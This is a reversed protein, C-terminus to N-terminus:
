PALVSLVAKQVTITGAVSLAGDMILLLIKYWDPKGEKQFNFELLLLALLWERWSIFVLDQRYSYLHVSDTNDQTSFKVYILKEKPKGFTKQWLFQLDARQPSVQYM